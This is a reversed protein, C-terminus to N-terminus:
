VHARGIELRGGIGDFMATGVYLLHDGIPGIGTEIIQFAHKETEADPDPIEYWLAISNGQPACHLFQAGKPIYQIQAGLVVLPNVDLPFKWVVRKSM